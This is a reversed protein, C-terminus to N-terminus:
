SRPGYTLKRLGKGNVGVISLSQPHSGFGSGGYLYHEFVVHRSDPAWSPHGGGSALQREGGSGDANAICVAGACQYAIFRGDPSWAPEYGDSLTFRRSTTADAVDIEDAAEFAIRTGDPSWTPAVESVAAVSGPRGAGVAGRYRRLLRHPHRGDLRMVYIAPADFTFPPGGVRKFVGPEDKVVALERGKPSWAPLYVSRLVLRSKASKVDLVVVGRESAFALSTGDPSWDVDSAEGSFVRRMGSGDPHILYVGGPGRSSTFAILRGDPSWDPDGDSTNFTVYNSDGSGGSGECGALALALGCFATSVAV